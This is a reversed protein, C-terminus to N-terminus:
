SIVIKYAGICKTHTHTHLTRKILMYELKRTFKNKKGNQFCMDPFSILQDIWCVRFVYIEGEVMQSPPPPLM